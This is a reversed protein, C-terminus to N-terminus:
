GLRFWFESYGQLLNFPSHGKEPTSVLYIFIDLYKITVISTKGYSFGMCRHSLYCFVFIIYVYQFFLISRFM